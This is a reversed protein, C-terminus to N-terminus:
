GTIKGEDGAVTPVAQTGKTVTLTVAVGVVTTPTKGPETNTVTCRYQWGTHAVRVDAKPVTYGADTGITEWANETKSREWLYTYTSATPVTLPIGGAHPLAITAPMGSITPVPSISAGQDIWHAWLTHTATVLTEATVKNGGTEQTYWGDFDKNSVATTPTPLAGYADGHSITMNPHTSNGGNVHFTVTYSNKTLPEVTVTKAAAVAPITYTVVAGAQSVKTLAVGDVKVVPAANSYPADLTLTFSYDKGSEAKPAGALTYGTGPTLTIAYVRVLSGAAGSLATAAADMQAKTAATNKLLSDANTRAAAFAAWQATAYDTEVKDKNANYTALLAAYSATTAADTLIQVDGVTVAATATTFELKVSSTRRPATLPVAVYGNTSVLSAQPITQTTGDSLTIKVDSEIATDKGPALMLRTVCQPAAFAFNVWAGSVAEAKWEFSKRTASVNDDTLGNVDYNAATSSATKTATKAANTEVLPAKDTVYDVTPNFHTSADGARNTAPMFTAFSIRDGKAVNVVLPRMLMGGNQWALTDDSIATGNKLIRFGATHTDNNNNNNRLYAPYAIGLEVTGSKPAKWTFYTEVTPHAASASILGKNGAGNDAGATLKENLAVWCKWAQRWDTFLKTTGDQRYENYWIPGQTNDKFDTEYNYHDAIAVYKVTYTKTQNGSTVVVTDNEVVTGGTITDAGHKVAFTVLPAATLGAVFTNYPVAEEISITSATDNVTYTNSTLVAPPYAF